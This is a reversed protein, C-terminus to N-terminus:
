GKCSFHIKRKTLDVKLRIDKVSKQRRYVLTRKRFLSFRVIKSKCQRKSINNVYPKGIRHARLVDLVNNFVDESTENEILPM